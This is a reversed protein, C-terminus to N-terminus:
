PNRDPRDRFVAARPVPGDVRDSRRGALDRVRHGGGLSGAYLAVIQILLFFNSFEWMAWLPIFGGAYATYCALRPIYVVAILRSAKNRGAVAIFVCFPTFALLIPMTYDSFATASRAVILSLLMAAGAWRMGKDRSTFALVVGVLILISLTLSYWGTPIFTM